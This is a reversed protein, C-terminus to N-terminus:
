STKKEVFKTFFQHPAYEVMNWEGRLHEGNGLTEYQCKKCISQSWVEMVYNGVPYLQFPTRQSVSQSVCQCIDSKMPGVCMMPPDLFGQTTKDQILDPVRGKLYIGGKM